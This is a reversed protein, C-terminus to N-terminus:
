NESIHIKKPVDRRQSSATMENFTPEDEGEESRQQIMGKNKGYENNNISESWQKNM